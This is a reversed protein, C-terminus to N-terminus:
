LKELFIAPPWTTQGGAKLNQCCFSNDNFSLRAWSWVSL